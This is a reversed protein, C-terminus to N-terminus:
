KQELKERLEKVEARLEEIQKKLLAVEQNGAAVGEAHFRASATAQAKAEEALQQAQARMEEASARAKRSMENAIRQYREVWQKVEQDDVTADFQLGGGSFSLVRNGKKKLIPEVVERVEASLEDLQDVEEVEYETTDGNSHVTIKAPGEGDRTVTVELQKGDTIVKKVTVQSEQVQSDQAPSDQAASLEALEGIPSVRVAPSGLQFIQVENELGTNMKQLKEILMQMEELPQDASFSFSFVGPVDGGEADAEGTAVMEIDVEGSLAMARAAQPRETPTITLQLEDGKRLVQLDMSLPEAANTADISRMVAMVDGPAALEKDALSLLVDGKKLGAQAAPSEPFVSEVLVGGDIELYNALDGEITKLVVGLWLSPRSTRKAAAEEENNPKDNNPKEGKVATITVVEQEEQSQSPVLEQALSQWPTALTLALATALASHSLKFKVLHSLPHHM